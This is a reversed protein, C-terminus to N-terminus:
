RMSRSRQRQRSEGGCYRDVNADDRQTDPAPVCSLTYHHCNAIDYSVNSSMIDSLQHMNIKIITTRDHLIRARSKNTNSISGSPGGDALFDATAEDKWARMSNALASLASSSINMSNM